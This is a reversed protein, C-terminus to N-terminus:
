QKYKLKTINPFQILESICDYCILSEQFVAKDENCRICYGIVFDPSNLQEILCKTHCPKCWNTSTIYEIKDCGNCYGIFRYLGKRSM